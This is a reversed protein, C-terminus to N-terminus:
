VRNMFFSHLLQPDTWIKPLDPGGSGETTACMVLPRCDHAGLCPEPPAGVLFANHYIEFAM